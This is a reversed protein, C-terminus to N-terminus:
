MLMIKQTAIEKGELVIKVYYFGKSEQSADWIFDHTGINKPSNELLNSMKQGLSNYIYISLRGQEALTIKLRTINEFPNPFVRLSNELKDEIKTEELAHYQNHLEQYHKVWVPSAYRANFDPSPEQCDIAPPLDIKAILTTDKLKFGPYFKISKGALLRTKAKTIDFSGSVHIFDHAQFITDELTQRHNLTHNSQRNHLLEGDSLSIALGINKKAALRILNKKIHAIDTGIRFENIVKGTVYAAAMSTGSKKGKHLLNNPLGDNLPHYTPVLSNIEEGQAALDTSRQCPTAESSYHSGINPNLSWLDHNQDAAQVAIITAHNFSSPYNRRNKNSNDLRQNGVASIMLINDKNAVCLAEFLAEDRMNLGGVSMNMAKTGKQVAYYIGQTLSFSTGIGNADLVKIPLIRFPNGLHNLNAAKAIIGAVHTGHGGRVGQNSGYMNAHDILHNDFTFHRYLTDDIFNQGLADPSQPYYAIVHQLEPHYPDIGTDLLGILETNAPCISITIPKIAIQSKLAEFTETHYFHDHDLGKVKSVSGAPVGELADIVEDVDINMIWEELTDQLIAPNLSLTSGSFTNLYLNRLDTKNAPTVGNEYRVILKYKAYAGGIGNPKHPYIPINANDVLGLTTELDNDRIDADFEYAGLDIGSGISRPLGALDINPAGIPVPTGVNLCGSNATLQFQNYHRNYFQPNVSLPTNNQLILNSGGLINFSFAAANSFNISDNLPSTFDFNYLLNGENFQFISNTFHFRCTEGKWLATGLTNNPNNTKNKVVTCNWARLTISDHLGIASGSTVASDNEILLNYARLRVAPQRNGTAWIAAGYFDAINNSLVLNQLLPSSGQTIFIGGGYDAWNDKIILDLLSPNSNNECLIGGGVYRSLYGGGVIHI